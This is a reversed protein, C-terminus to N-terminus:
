PAEQARQWIEWIESVLFAPFKAKIGPRPRHYRPDEACGKIAAQSAYRGQHRLITQVLPGITKVNPSRKEHKL